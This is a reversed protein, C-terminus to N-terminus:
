LAYGIKGMKRTLKDLKQIIKLYRQANKHVFVNLNRKLKSNKYNKVNVVLTV